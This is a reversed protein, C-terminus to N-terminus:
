ETTILRQQAHEYEYNIYLICFYIMVVLYTDRCMTGAYMFYDYWVMALMVWRFRRHKIRFYPISLFLTMLLAGIVGITAYQQFFGTGAGKYSLHITIPLKDYEDYTTSYFSSLGTGWIDSDTLKRPGFILKLLEITANGRGYAEIHKQGVGYQGGEYFVQQQSQLTEMQGEVGEEGFQYQNAYDYMYDIDFRGWVKNEPNLTPTLRAGLYIILPFALIALIWYKSPNRGKVYTLFLFILVPVILWVARKGTTWGVFLLGVIILWDFTSFVGKKYLYLIYFGVIPLTTGIAGGPITFTGVLGEIQTRFLLFKIISLIIQVLIIDYFLRLLTEKEDNVYIAAKIVFWLLFIELYRSYQSFIITWSDNSQFITTYFFVITLVLYTVIYPIEKKTMMEWGKYLYFIYCCYAFLLIKYLNEVGKGYFIFVRPFCLLIICIPLLGSRYKWLLYLLTAIVFVQMWIQPVVPAWIYTFNM